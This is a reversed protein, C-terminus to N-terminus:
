RAPPAGSLVARIPPDSAAGKGGAARPGPPPSRWRARSNCSSTPCSRVPSCRAARISASGALLVTLRSELLCAGDDIFKEVLYAAQGEVQSRGHEILKPKNGSQRLKELIVRLLGAHLDAELVLVNFFAKSGLHFRRGISNNLFCERVHSAVRPGGSTVTLTHAVCSRSLTCISSRPWPKSGSATRAVGRDLPSAPMRSRTTSKFPWSVMSRPGPLCASLPPFVRESRRLFVM